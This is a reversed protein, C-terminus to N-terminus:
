CACWRPTRRLTGEPALASWHPDPLAALALSFTPYRQERDGQAAGCLTAFRSDLEMGACLLLVDREFPSLDFADCLTDLASPGPLAHRADELAAKLGSEATTEGRPAEDSRAAHREVAERVLGLAATLYRQNAESWREM